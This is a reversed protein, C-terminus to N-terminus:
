YNLTAGKKPKNTESKWWESPGEAEIDNWTDFLIRKMEATKEPMSSALDNEEKSDKQIEFIKFKTM